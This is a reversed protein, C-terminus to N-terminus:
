KGEQTEIGIAILDDRNAAVFKALSAEVAALSRKAAAAIEKRHTFLANQEALLRLYERHFGQDGFTGVLQEALHPLTTITLNDLWGTLDAIRGREREVSSRLSAYSGALSGLRAAEADSAAKIRNGAERMADLRKQAATRTDAPVPPAPMPRGTHYCVQPVPEPAPEALIEDVAAMVVERATRLESM